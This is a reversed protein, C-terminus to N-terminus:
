FFVGRQVNFNYTKNFMAPGYRVAACTFDKNIGGEVVADSRVMAMTLFSIGVTLNSVNCASLSTQLGCFRRHCRVDPRKYAVFGGTVVYM